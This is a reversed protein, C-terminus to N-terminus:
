DRTPRTKQARRRRDLRDQARAETRVRAVYERASREERIAMFEDIHRQREDETQATGLRRLLAVHMFARVIPSINRDKGGKSNGDREDTM